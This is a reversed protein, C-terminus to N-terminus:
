QGRGLLRFKRALTRVPVKRRLWGLARRIPSPRPAHLHRNIQELDQQKQQLAAKMTECQKQLDALSALAAEKEQQVENLRQTQALLQEKLWDRVNSLQEAWEEAMQATTRWAQQQRVAHSAKEELEALARAREEALKRWDHTGNRAINGQEVTM